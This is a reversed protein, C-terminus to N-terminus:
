NQWTKESLEDGRKGARLLVWTVFTGAAFIGFCCWLWAISM